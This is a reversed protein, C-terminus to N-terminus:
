RKPEPAHALFARQHRRVEAVFDRAWEHGAALDTRARSKKALRMRHGITILKDPPISYEGGALIVSSTGATGGSARGHRPPGSGRHLGLPSTGYPGSALIADMIKAGALSNGSGLGSVVDAPMVFSDAAVNMPLRDTRGAVDSAIFGGPHYGSGYMLDRAEGREAMPDAMGMGGTALKEPVDAMGGMSRGRRHNAEAIAVIQKMPRPRSGHHVLERITDGVPAGPKLPM